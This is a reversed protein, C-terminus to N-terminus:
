SITLVTSLVNSLEIAVAICFTLSVISTATLSDADSSSALSTKEIACVVSVSAATADTDPSVDTAVISLLADVSVIFNIAKFLKVTVPSVFAFTKSLSIAIVCVPLKSTDSGSVDSSIM